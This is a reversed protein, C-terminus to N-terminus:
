EVNSLNKLSENDRQVDLRHDKPSEIWESSFYENQSCRICKRAAKFAYQEGNNMIWDSYDKYRWNHGVLKCIFKMTNKTKFHM